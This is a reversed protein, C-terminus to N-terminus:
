ETGQHRRAVAGAVGFGAIMVGGGWLLGQQVSQEIAPKMIEDITVPRGRGALAERQLAAYRQAGAATVRDQVICFVVFAAIAAMVVITRPRM